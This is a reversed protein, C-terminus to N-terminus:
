KRGVTELTRICQKLHREEHAILIDVILDLPLLVKNSIPSEVIIGQGMLPRLRERYAALETQQDIFRQVIHLDHQGAEPLWVKPARQGRREPNTRLVGLLIPGMWRAPIRLWTRPEAYTGALVQDFIVFYSANTKLLHSLVEAVSWEGRAPKRNLTLSDCDALAARYSKVIEAIDPPLEM